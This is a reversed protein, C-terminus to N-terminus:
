SVDAVILETFKHFDFHAESIIRIMFCQKSQGIRNDMQKWTVIELSSICVFIFANSPVNNVTLGSRPKMSSEDSLIVCLM